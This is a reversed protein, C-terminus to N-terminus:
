TECLLFMYMVGFVAEKEERCYIWTCPEVIARKDWNLKLRTLKETSGKQWGHLVSLEGVCNTQAVSAGTMAMDTFDTCLM